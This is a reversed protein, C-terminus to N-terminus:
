ASYSEGCILCFLPGADAREEPIKVPEWPHCPLEIIIMDDPEYLPTPAPANNRGPTYNSGFLRKMEDNVVDIKYFEVMEDRYRLQDQTFWEDAQKGCLPCTYRAPDTADAPRGETPGYHWKFEDLCRACRRRLFHDADLPFDLRIDL